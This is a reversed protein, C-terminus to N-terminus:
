LTYSSHRFMSSHSRVPNCVFSAPEPNEVCDWKYRYNWRTFACVIRRKKPYTCGRRPGHLQVLSSEDSSFIRLFFGPVHSTILQKKHNMTGGALEVISPCVTSELSVNGQKGDICCLIARGNRDKQPLIQCLGSELCAEDDNEDLDKITVDRVLKDNDFLELKTKFFRVFKEAAWAADFQTSRLFALRLNRDLVFRPNRSEALCYAGKNAIDQIRSEFETLRQEVIEILEESM